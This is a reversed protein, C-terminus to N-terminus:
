GGYNGGAFGADAFLRDSGGLTLGVTQVYSGGTIHGDLAVSDVPSDSLIVQETYSGGALVSGVGVSDSVPEAVVVTLSYSGSALAATVAAQDSHAPSIITAPSYVGSTLAADVKLQDGIWQRLPNIFGGVLVAGLGLNDGRPTTPIIPSTPTYVGGFFGRDLFVKDRAIRSFIMAPAPAGGSCAPCELSSVEGAASGVGPHARAVRVGGPRADDQGLFNQRM